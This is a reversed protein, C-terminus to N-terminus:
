APALLLRLIHAEARKLDEADFLSGEGQIIAYRSAMREISSYLIVARALADREPLAPDRQAAGIRTALGRVVPMAADDRARVFPPQGIEARFNRVNLIARHKDWYRYFAAIFRQAHADITVAEWPLDLEAVIEAMDGAAENALSLLVEDVDAFYLYFTQSALGAARAVASATLKEAPTEAILGRTAEILRARSEAGKRGLAQGQKNIAVM